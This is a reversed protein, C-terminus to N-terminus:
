GRTSGVYAGAYTPSASQQLWSPVTSTALADGASIRGRALAGAAAAGVFFFRPRSGTKM